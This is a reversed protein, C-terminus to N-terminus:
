PSEQAPRAAIDRSPHLETSVAVRLIQPIHRTTGMLPNRIVVRRRPFRALVADYWGLLAMRGSDDVRTGFHV